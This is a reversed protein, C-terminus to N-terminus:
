SRGEDNNAEPIDNIDVECWYGGEGPWRVSPNELPKRVQEHKGTEPDEQWETESRGPLLHDVYIKYTKGAVKVKKAPDPHMSRITTGKKITVQQGKKLPLEHDDHYGIFKSM